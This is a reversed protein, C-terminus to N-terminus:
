WSIFSKISCCFDTELAKMAMIGPLRHEHEEPLSLQEGLMGLNNGRKIICGNGFVDIRRELVTVTKVSSIPLCARTSAPDPHNFVSSLEMM